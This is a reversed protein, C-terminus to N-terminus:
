EELNLKKDLKRMTKLLTHSGGVCQPNMWRESSFYVSCYYYAREYDREKVYHHVLYEYAVSWPIEEAVLREWSAVQEAPDECRVAEQIRQQWHADNEVPPFQARALAYNERCFEFYRLRERYWSRPQSVMSVRPLSPVTNADITIAGGCTNCAGSQGVYQEPVQRVAGCHPCTFNIHFPPLMTQQITSTM